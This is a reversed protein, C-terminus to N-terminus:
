AVTRGVLTRMYTQDYEAPPVQLAMRAFDQGQAPM